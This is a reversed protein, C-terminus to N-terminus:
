ILLSAAGTIILLGLFNLVFSLLIFKKSDYHTIGLLSIGIEDPLPSAIIIGVILPFLFSYKTNKLKKIWKVGMSDIFKETKKSIKNKIIYFIIYDGTVTGLAGILSILFPNVTKTFLILSATAPAATVAYEYFIGSIYIGILGKSGLSYIFEHVRGSVIM